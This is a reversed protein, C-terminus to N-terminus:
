RFLRTPIGELQIIGFNLDRLAAGYPQVITGGDVAFEVPYAPHINKRGDLDVPGSVTGSSGYVTVQFFEEPQHNATSSEVSLSGDLWVLHQLGLTKNLSITSFSYSGASIRGLQGSSSNDVFLNGSSDYACDLFGQGPLEYITPTGQANAYVAVNKGNLVALNGTTPDVSCGFPYGPGPDSLTAVPSTDGHSYENVYIPNNYFQSYPVFVNGNGDACMFSPQAAFGKLKGVLKGSDFSFVAVDGDPKAYPDAAYILDEGKAEPLM